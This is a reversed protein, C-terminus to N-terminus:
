QGDDTKKLGASLGYGGTCIIFAKRGEPNNLFVNKNHKYYDILKKARDVSVKNLILKHEKDYELGGGFIIIRNSLGISKM